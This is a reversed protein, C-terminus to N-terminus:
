PLALVSPPGENGTRGVGTVVVREPNGSVQLQRSWGPVVRTEWRSGTRARITWLFVEEAGQAAVDLDTRTPTRGRLSLRPARPADRSLWPSAPVLAPASYPAAMLREVLGDRNLMLSSMSFLVNGTAGPRQRTVDIQQVIERAPWSRSGTGVRGSYSGPWIHRGARNQGVWWDLLV